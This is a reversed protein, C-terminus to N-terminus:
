FFSLPILSYFYLSVSQDKKKKPVNYPFTVYTLLFVLCGAMNFCHLVFFVQGLTGLVEKREM